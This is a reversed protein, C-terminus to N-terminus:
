NTIQCGTALGSLPYMRTVRNMHTVSYVYSYCQICILLEIYMSTVRYVYSHSQICVLLVIYVLLVSYM